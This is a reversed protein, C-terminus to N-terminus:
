LYRAIQKYIDIAEQRSLQGASAARGISSSVRVFERQQEDSAKESQTTSQSSNLASSQRDKAEPLLSQRQAVAQQSLPVTIASAVGSFAVGSAAM